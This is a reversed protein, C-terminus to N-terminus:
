SKKYKEILSKNEKLFQRLNKYSIKKMAEDITMWYIKGGKETQITDDNLSQAIFYTLDISGDKLNTYHYTPLAFILQVDIGTEEKTERIACEELTESKEIHGKPFSFDDYKGQYLVLIKNPEKQSFTICGAKLVTSMNEEM